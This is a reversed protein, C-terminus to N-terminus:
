RGQSKRNNEATRIARLIKAKSKNGRLAAEEIKTKLEEERVEAHDKCTQQLESRAIQLQEKTTQISTPLHFDVGLRQMRNKLQQTRDLGLRLSNLHGRLISVHLRQQVIQQSYFEPRRRRCAQEAINSSTGIMDDITEVLQPATSDDELLYQLSFGNRQAIERYWTTIFKYVAVKDKTKVIRNQASQTSNNRYGFLIKTDFDMLLPRHDSYKAYQFPAYGITQLSNLLGPTMLVIDIRRQGMIHTGFPPHHPFRQLFPDTLNTTTALKLIGSNRDELSENFDGGLIIDHGKAQLRLIFDELDSIFAKRPHQTPRGQASLARIQQHYATNGLINTPRPCVQYAAIITIPSRGHRHLHLYTWRGMPDSGQGQPEKRSAIEGLALLGTGGPKYQHVAPEQSSNLTTISPGRYTQTVIDQATQLVQFKTTDLCHESIGQIDVEMTIQENIFMALGENGHLTIGNVNHFMLRTSGVSKTTSLDDGQWIPDNSINQRTRLYRAM